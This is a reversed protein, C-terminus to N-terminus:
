DPISIYQELLTQDVSEIGQKKKLIVMRNDHTQEVIDYYPLVVHYKPRDLFDDFAILCRNSIVNFCTLCCAVRFRGDVLVLDVKAREDENLFTIQNIYNMWNNRCSNSGPWGWTNPKTDM